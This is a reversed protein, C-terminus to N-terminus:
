QKPQETERGEKKGSNYSNENKQVQSSFTYKTLKYIPDLLM